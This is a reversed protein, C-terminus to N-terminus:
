ALEVRRVRTVDVGEIGATLATPVTASHPRTISCSRPHRASNAYGSRRVSTHTTQRWCPDPAPSGANTTASGTRVPGYGATATHRSCAAETVAPGRTIDGAATIREASSSRYATSRIGNSETRLRKSRSGTGTGNVTGRGRGARGTAGGARRAAGGNGDPCTLGAGADMGGVESVNSGGLRSGSSSCTALATPEPTNTANLQTTNRTNQKNERCDHM